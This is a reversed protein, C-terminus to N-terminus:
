YATASIENGNPIAIRYPRAVAHRARRFLIEVEKLLVAQVLQDESRFM